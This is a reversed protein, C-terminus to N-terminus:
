PTLGEEKNITEGRDVQGRLMLSKTKWGEMWSIGIDEKSFYNTFDINSGEPFDGKIIENKM